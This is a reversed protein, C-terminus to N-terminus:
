DQTSSSTGDASERIAKAMKEALGDNVVGSVTTPAGDIAGVSYILPSQYESSEFLFSLLAAWRHAQEVDGLKVAGVIGAVIESRLENIM